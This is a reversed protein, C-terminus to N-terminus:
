LVLIRPRRRRRIRIRLGRSLLDEPLRAAGAGAGAGAAARPHPERVQHYATPSRVQHTDPRPSRLLSLDLVPRVIVEMERLVALVLGRAEGDGEGPQAAGGRGWAAREDHQPQVAGGAGAKVGEPGSVSVSPARGHVGGLLDHLSAVSAQGTLDAETISGGYQGVSPGRGGGAAAAAPGSAQGQLGAFPNDDGAQAGLTDGAQFTISSVVGSSGGQPPQPPPQLPQCNLLNCLAAVVAFKVELEPLELSCVLPQLLLEPPSQLVRARGEELACLNALMGTVFTLLSQMQLLLVSGSSSIAALQSAMQLKDACALVATLAPFLAPCAALARVLVVSGSMNQLAGAAAAAAAVTHEVQALQQQALFHLESGEAPLALVKPRTLPAPPPQAGSGPSGLGPEAHQQSPM